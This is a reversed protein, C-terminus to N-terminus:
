ASSPMRSKQIHSSNLRTSKRDLAKRSIALTRGPISGTLVQIECARQLVSMWYFASAIDQGAVLLGHNRLILCTKDGMSKVLRPQEDTHVTVGEFDHYAIRGYLLAAYLNDNAFGDAKCAVAMGYPNHTHMICHADDRAAHLASHIIFGAVNVPHASPEVANGALDIKVLNTASVEGCHLGFPNILYHKQPGPIRLTIHNFIEEMWGRHDFVRYCAALWVRLRWEEGTYRAPKSRDIEEASFAM